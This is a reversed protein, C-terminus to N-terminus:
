VAEAEVQDEREARQGQGQIRPMSGSQGGGGWRLGSVPDRPVEGCRYLRANLDGTLGSWVCTM